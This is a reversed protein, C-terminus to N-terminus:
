SQLLLAHLMFDPTLTLSVFLLFHRLQPLWIGRIGLDAVLASVGRPYDAEKMVPERIVWKFAMAAIEGPADRVENHQQTVLDRKLFKLMHELSFASACGDNDARTNIAIASHWCLRWLLSGLLNSSPTMNSYTPELSLIDVLSSYVTLTYKGTKSLKRTFSLFHNFEWFTSIIFATWAFMCDEILWNKPDYKGWLVSLFSYNLDHM